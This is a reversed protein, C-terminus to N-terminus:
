CKQKMLGVDIKRKADFLKQELYEVVEQTKELPDRDRNNIGQWCTFRELVREALTVHRRFLAGQIATVYAVADPSPMLRKRGKKPLEMSNLIRLVVQEKGNRSLAGIVTTWNNRSPRIGLRKMDAIINALEHETQFHPSSLFAQFTVSDPLIKPPVAEPSHTLSHSTGSLGSPPTNFMALVDNYLELAKTKEDIVLLKWLRRPFHHRFPLLLAQLLIAIADPSPTLRSSRGRLVDFGLLPSLRSGEAIPSIGPAAQAIREILRRGPVGELSFYAIFAKVVELPKQESLALYTEATGFLRENAFSRPVLDRRPGSHRVLRASRSSRRIFLRMLNQRGEAKCAKMWMALTRVSPLSKNPSGLSKLSRIALYDTRKGGRRIVLHDGSSQQRPSTSRLKLLRDLTRLENSTLNEAARHWIESAYNEHRVAAGRISRIGDLCIFYTFLSIEKPLIKLAHLLLQAATEPRGAVAYTRIALAWRRAIRRRTNGDLNAGHLTPIADARSRSTIATHRDEWIRNNGAGYHEIDYSNVREIFQRSHAPCSFRIIRPIIAKLDKTYGKAALMLAGQRAHAININPSQLSSCFERVVSSCLPTTSQATPILDWWAVALDFSLKKGSLGITNEGGVSVNPDNLSRLISLSVSAYKASPAIQFGSEMLTERIREAEALNGLRVADLLSSSCQRAFIARDSYGYEESIEELFPASPNSLSSSPISVASSTSAVSHVGVGDESGPLTDHVHYPVLIGVWRHNQTSRSPFFYPFTRTSLQRTGRGALTLMRKAPHHSHEQTRVNLM